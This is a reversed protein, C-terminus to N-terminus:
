NLHKWTYNHDIAMICSASVDYCQGIERYLANRSGVLEAYPKDALLQKIERVQKENLKQTVRNNRRGDSKKVKIVSSKAAVPLSPNKVPVTIVTDIDNIKATIVLRDGKVDVNPSHSADIDLTQIQRVAFPSTTM